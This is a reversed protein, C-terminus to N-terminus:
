GHESPSHLTMTMNLWSKALFAYPKDERQPLCLTADDRSM